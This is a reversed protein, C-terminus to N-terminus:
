REKCPIVKGALYTTQTYESDPALIADFYMYIALHLTKRTAMAGCSLSLAMQLGSRSTTSNPQIGSPRMSCNLSTFPTVARAHGVVKLHEARQTHLM